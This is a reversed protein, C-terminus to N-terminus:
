AGELPPSEPGERETSVESQNSELASHLAHWALSACKVRLPFRSVGGLARLSGLSQQEAEPLAGTVLQHFREFLDEAEARTKGKVATTMLSASAKSIACGQGKFSVDTITDNELKVWLTLEDGCLPNRGEITRDANPMERFNRPKRNHELILEQYLAD